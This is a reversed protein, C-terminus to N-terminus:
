GPSWWDLKAEFGYNKLHPPLRVPRWRGGRSPVVRVANTASDTLYAILKGDPSWAPSGGSQRLGRQAGTAITVVRIQRNDDVYALRRGDPAWSPDSQEVFYERGPVPDPVPTTVARLAHGDPRVVYVSAISVGDPQHAPMGIFAIGGTASWVPIHEDEIDWGPPRVEVVDGDGDVIRRLKSGDHRVIWVGNRKGISGAIVLRASDPGWSFAKNGDARIGLRRPRGILRGGPTATRQVVLRGKADGFALWRGDPSVRPPTVCTVNVQTSPILSFRWTPEAAWREFWGAPGSCVDLCDNLYERSLLLGPPLATPLARKPAEVRNGGLSLSAESSFNADDAVPKSRAAPPAAVAAVVGVVLLM